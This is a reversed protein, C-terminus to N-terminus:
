FEYIFLSTQNKDKISIEQTPTTEPLKFSNVFLKSGNVLESKAKKELEPMPTPSLFAYVFNYEAFSIKWYDGLRIRVNSNGLNNLKAALIASPSLDIGEFHALPFKKALFSLLKADGCGVDVFKFHKNPPLQSALLDYIKPSSPYYPVRTWFTPLFLLGFVILLVLWIWGYGPFAVSVLLGAPIMFNIFRWPASLRLFISLYGSILSHIAFLFLLPVQFTQLGSSFTAGVFQCILTLFLYKLPAFKDSTKM